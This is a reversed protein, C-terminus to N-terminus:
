NGAGRNVIRRGCGVIDSMFTSDAEETTVIVMDM